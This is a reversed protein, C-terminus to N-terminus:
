RAFSEELFSLLAANFGAPNELNALHGAQPIVVLQGRPLVSAISEAVAVPTIVDEAGVLVLAPCDLRALIDTSDPRLAMGRSAAAVGAPENQSALSLVVEAEDQGAGPRLLGGLMTEAVARAGKELALTATRERNARTEPADASARTDALVLGAIREPFARAMAMAVYGGMSLGVLVARPLRYHDLLAVVDQAMMEPTVAEGAAPLPRTRGFGRLDPAYATWGRASFAELQPQWM